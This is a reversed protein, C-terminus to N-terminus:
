LGVTGKSHLVCGIASSWVALRGVCCLSVQYSTGYAMGQMGDAAAAASKDGAYMGGEYMDVGGGWRGAAQEGAVFGSPEVYSIAPGSSGSAGIAGVGEYLVEGREAELAPAGPANAPALPPQKSRAPLTFLPASNISSASTETEPGGSASKARMNALLDDEDGDSDSEEGDEEPGGHASVKEARAATSPKVAEGGLREAEIGRAAAAERPPADAAVAAAATARAAAADRRRLQSKLLIDDASAVTSPQPLLSLLDNPNSGPPRVIRPPRKEPPEDSDSDGLTDGRALAAQIEPSLVFANVTKTKKGKKKHKTRSKGGTKEKRKGKGGDGSKKTTAPAAPAAIPPPPPAAAKAKGKGKAAQQPIQVAKPIPSHSQEQKEGPSDNDDDSSDYGGVLNM